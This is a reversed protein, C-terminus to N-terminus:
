QQRTGVSDVNTAGTEICDPRHGPLYVLKKRGIECRDVLGDSEMRSLTRSVKAPSWEVMRNIDVQWLVGAPDDQRELLARVREESSLVDASTVTSADSTPETDDTSVLRLIATLLNTGM